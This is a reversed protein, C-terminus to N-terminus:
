AHSEQTRRPQAAAVASTSPLPEARYLQGTHRCVVAALTLAMCVAAIAGGLDFLLLRHGFVTSYPSRLLALNGAILLLRIETPGFLGQSLQFEGLTYTALYSEAALLLFGLLMAIAVRWHVMGSLGLGTMLAVSGLCDVVHDVYFGFRPRQQQRIRALTGDLSDGFWNLTLCLIVLWLASRHQGSMAYFIGAGCQALLGLLTLQDSTVCGPLRPAILGLIRQELAATLATHIRRAPEFAPPQSLTESHM